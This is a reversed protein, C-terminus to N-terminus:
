EELAYSGQWQLSSESTRDNVVHFPLDDPYSYAGGNGMWLSLLAIKRPDDTRFGIQSAHVAESRVYLPDHVYYVASRDLELAPMSLLYTEGVKMPHPLTLYIFHQATYFEGGHRNEEPYNTPKSKRWVATPRVGELYNNDHPSTITYSEPDDAIDTVLHKGALREYITITKQGHGVLMGLPFGNREVRITNEEGLPSYNKVIISDGPDQVYPIQISPIIRCASIEISLVGPAVSAINLIRPPEQVSGTSPLM